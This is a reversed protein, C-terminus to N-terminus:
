YGRVNGWTPYGAQSTGQTGLSMRRFADLSASSGLSTDGSPSRGVGGTAAGYQSGTGFLMTNTHLAQPRAVTLSHVIRLGQPTLEYGRSYVVPAARAKFWRQVKVLVM